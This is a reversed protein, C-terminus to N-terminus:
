EPLESRPSFKTFSVRVRENPGAIFTYICQRTYRNLNSENDSSPNVATSQDSTNSSSSSIISSSVTTAPMPIRFSPGVFTGNYTGNTINLTKSIFVQDCDKDFWFFFIM